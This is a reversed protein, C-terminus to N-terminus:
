VLDAEGADDRIARGEGVHRVNEDFLGRPAAPEGAPEHLSM